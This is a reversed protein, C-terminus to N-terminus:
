VNREVVCEVKGILCDLSVEGFARSDTSESPNDGILSVKGDLSIAAIRKVINSNKYPHTALVVDGASVNKGSKVLVIVGSRLTPLM